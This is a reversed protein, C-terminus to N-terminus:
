VKTVNCISTKGTAVNNKGFVVYKNTCSIVKYTGTYVYSAYKTNTNMDKSGSKIKVKDGKKINNTKKKTTKTAKTTTAKKNYGNLKKTKIINPYNYDYVVNRDFYCRIGSIKYKSTFQHVRYKNKVDTNNLTGDNKGWSAVWRDYKTSLNKLQNNFWSLSAYVGVYYGKSEMYKCIEETIACLVSNSVGDHANDTSEMDIYVPYEFQKGKITEYFCVAEKKADEVNKAYSYWYVGVDLGNEKAKKYYEEFKSDKQSLSKGYGARIIVFKNGSNKIKKFDINGNHKSIDLGYIM